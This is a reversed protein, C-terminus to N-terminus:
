DINLYIELIDKTIKSEPYKHNFRNIKKEITKVLLTRKIDRQEQEQEKRIYEDIMFEVYNNPYANILEARTKFTKIIGNDTVHFVKEM